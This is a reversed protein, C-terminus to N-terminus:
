DGWDVYGGEDWIYEWEFQIWAHLHPYRRILRDRFYGDATIRAQESGVGDTYSDFDVCRYRWCLTRSVSTDIIYTCIKQGDFRAWGKAITYFIIVDLWNKAATIHILWYWGIPQPQPPLVMQGQLEGAGSTTEMTVYAIDDDRTVYDATWIVKENKNLNIVFDSQPIISPMGTMFPSESVTTKEKVISMPSMASIPTLLFLAVVIIATIGILKRKM